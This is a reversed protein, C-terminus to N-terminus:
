REVLIDPQYGLLRCERVSLSHCACSRTGRTSYRSSLYSKTSLYQPVTSTRVYPVTCTACADERAASRTQGVCKCGQRHKKFRSIGTALQDAKSRGLEWEEGDPTFECDGRDEQTVENIRAAVSQSHTGGAFFQLDPAVRLDLIRAMECIFADDFAMASWNRARTLKVMMSYFASMAEPQGTPDYGRRGRLMVSITKRFQVMTGGSYLQTVGEVKETRFGLRLHEHPEFDLAKQLWRSTAASFLSRLHRDIVARPLYIRTWSSATVETAREPNHLCGGDAYLTAFCRRAIVGLEDVLTAFLASRRHESQTYWAKFKDANKVHESEEGLTAYVLARLRRMDGSENDHKGAARDPASAHRAITGANRREGAESVQGLLDLQCSQGSSMSEVVRGEKM